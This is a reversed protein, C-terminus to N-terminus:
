RDRYACNCRLPSLNNGTHSMKKTMQRSNASNGPVVNQAQNSLTSFEVLSCNRQLDVRGISGGGESVPADTPSSHPWCMLQDGQGGTAGAGDGRLVVLLLLFTDVVIDDKRDLGLESPM